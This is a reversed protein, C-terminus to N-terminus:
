FMIKGDGIEISSKALETSKMSWYDEWIKYSNMYKNLMCKSLQQQSVPVKIPKPNLPFFLM